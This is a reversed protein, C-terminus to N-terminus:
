YITYIHKQIASGDSRSILRAPNKTPNQTYQIYADRCHVPTWNM